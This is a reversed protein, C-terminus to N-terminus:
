RFDSVINLPFDLDSTRPSFGEVPVLVLRIPAPVDIFPSM